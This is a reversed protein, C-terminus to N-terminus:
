EPIEHVRPGHRGEHLGEPLPLLLDPERRDEGESLDGVRPRDGPEQGEERVGVTVDPGGGADEGVQADDGNVGGGSGCAIVLVASGITGLVSLSALRM